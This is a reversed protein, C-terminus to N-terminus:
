PNQVAKLYNSVAWGQENPDSPAALFWWSYGGAQKPGDKVLFVESELALFRVKGDLSPDARLRLGDGGTGTIQVYVGVEIVGGEPNPPITPSPTIDPQPTPTDPVPTSTPVAIVKLVATAPGAASLGPRTLWILAFTTGLLILATLIAGGIVWPNLFWRLPNRFKM